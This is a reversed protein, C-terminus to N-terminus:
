IQEHLLTFIVKSCIYMSIIDSFDGEQLITGMSSSLTALM